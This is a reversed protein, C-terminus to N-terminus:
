SATLIGAVRDGAWEVGQLGAVGYVFGDLVLKLVGFTRKVTTTNVGFTAPSATHIATVVEGVLSAVLDRVGEAGFLQYRDIAARLEKLRSLLADEIETRESRELEEILESLAEIAATTRVEELSCSKGAGVLMDHLTELREITLQDILQRFADQANSAYGVPSVLAGVRQALTERYRERRGEAVVDLEGIAKDVLKSFRFIAVQWAVGKSGFAHEIIQGVIVPQAEFLPRLREIESLLRSASTINETLRLGM